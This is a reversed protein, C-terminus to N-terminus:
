EQFAIQAEESWDPMGKHMDQRLAALVLNYIMAVDVLHGWPFKNLQAQVAAIAYERCREEDALDVPLDLGLSDLLADLEGKIRAQEAAQVAQIVLSYLM